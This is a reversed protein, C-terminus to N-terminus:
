GRALEATLRDLNEENAPRAFREVKRYDSDTDFTQRWGLRTGGGEPTLTVTLTYYPHSRHRIVIRQADFAEFASENQYNGGTPGHMTFRWQGGPRPEFVHFTNRFDRPGWWRALRDADSFAALIQAPMADLHRSTALTRADDSTAAPTPEM